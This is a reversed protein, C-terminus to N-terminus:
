QTLTGVKFHPVSIKCRSFTTDLCCCCAERDCHTQHITVLIVQTVDPAGNQPPLTARFSEPDDKHVSDQLSRRFYGGKDDRALKM